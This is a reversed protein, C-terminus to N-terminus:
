KFGCVETHQKGEHRMYWTDPLSLTIILTRLMFIGQNQFRNSKIFQRNQPKSDNASLNPAPSCPPSLLLRVEFQGKGRRTVSESEWKSVKSQNMQQSIYSFPFQKVIVPIMQQTNISLKIPKCNCPFLLCPFVVQFLSIFTDLQTLSLRLKYKVKGHIHNKVSLFNLPIVKTSYRSHSWNFQSSLVNHKRKRCCSVTVKTIVQVRMAVDSTKVSVHTM